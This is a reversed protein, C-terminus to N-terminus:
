SDLLTQGSLSQTWQIRHLEGPKLAAHKNQRNKGAYGM